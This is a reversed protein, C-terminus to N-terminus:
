EGDSIEEVSVTFRYRKGDECGLHWFVAMPYARLMFDCLNEPCGTVEDWCFCEMDGSIIGEFTVSKRESGM